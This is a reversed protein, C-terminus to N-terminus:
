PTSLVLDWVQVRLNGVENEVISFVGGGEIPALTEDFRRRVLLDGTSLDIVEVVGHAREPPGAGATQIARM